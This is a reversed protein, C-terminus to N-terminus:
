KKPRAVFYIITGIIAVGVLSLVVITTTSMGEDDPTGKGSGSDGSGSGSDGSGVNSGVNAGIQVQANAIARDTKNKDLSQCRQSLMM